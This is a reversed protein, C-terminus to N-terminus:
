YFVQQLKYVTLSRHGQADIATLGIRYTGKSVLEGDDGRGDWQISNEGAAFGMYTRNLVETGTESNDITLEIDAGGQLVFDIVSTKNSGETARSSPVLITPSVTMSTIHSGSRVFIANDPLEWGWIGFLFSENPPLQILAGNDDEGSWTIVHTGKGLTERQMFTVLRTNINFLGMFATVESAQPLTFSIKLPEGALPTFSSPIRSRSPNYQRGGTGAGADLKRVNGDVRYLLIARYEGEAVVVGSDDRGDWPDSYSGATRETWPLVTRVVRGGPTEIVVSVPLDGGIDTSITVIDGNTTDLTDTSVSLDFDATAQVRVTDEASQGDEATVRVRPYFTGPSNYTHNYSGGSTSQYDYQGDGDVDWEWSVMSLGDPDTVTAGLTVPLPTKGSAPSASATVSPAGQELARVELTPFSAEAVQGLADLVRITPQFQGVTEYVYNTTISATTGSISQSSDFTGDGDFDLQIESLGDADKASVLFQVALPLEGTSPTAEALTIIPASNIVVVTTTGDVVEGRSDTVRLTVIYEGPTSYTYQQDRGVTESRDFTGDGNLDWQYREIATDTTVIPTFVVSLPASGSGPVARPSAVLAEDATGNYHFPITAEAGLVAIATGNAEVQATFEGQEVTASYECQTQEGASIQEIECIPTGAAAEAILKVSVGQLDLPGTNKVTFVASFDEGATLDQGPPEGIPEGNLLGTLEISPFGPVGYYHQTQAASLVGWFLASTATVKTTLTNAGENADTITNCVKSEGSPIYLFFCLPKLDLGWSRRKDFVTVWRLTTDGTNQVEVRREIPDGTVLVHGPESTAAEGNLTVSASIGPEGFLAGTASAYQVPGVAFILLFLNRILRWFTRGHGFHNM